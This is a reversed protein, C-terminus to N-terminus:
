ATEIFNLIHVKWSIALIRSFFSAEVLDSVTQCSMILDSMM